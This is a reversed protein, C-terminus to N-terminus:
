FRAVEFPKPKLATLGSDPLVRYEGVVVEVENAVNVAQAVNAITRAEKETMLGTVLVSYVRRGEM